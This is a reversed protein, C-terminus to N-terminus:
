QKELFYQLYRSFHPFVDISITRSGHGTDTPTDPDDSWYEAYNYDTQINLMLMQSYLECGVVKYTGEQVTSPYNRDGNPTRILEYRFTGDPNFTFITRQDYLSSTSYNEWTGFLYRNLEEANGPGAEQQIIVKIIYRDDFAINKDNTFALEITDRRVENTLNPVATIYMENKYRSPNQYDASFSAKYWNTNSARWSAIAYSGKGYSFSTIIGSSPITVINTSVYPEDDSAAAQEVEFAGYFPDGDVSTGEIRVMNGRKEPQKNEGMTITVTNGDLTGEIEPSSAPIRLTLDTLNTEKIAVTQTGGEKPFSLKEPELVMFPRAQVVVISDQVLEEGKQSLGTLRIVGRRSQTGEPLDTWSFSVLNESSTWLPEGMWDVTGKVEVNKMNPVVDVEKLGIYEGRLYGGKEGLNINRESIDFRAADVTFPKQQNVLLKRGTSLVVMPYATLNREIGKGPDIDTLVMNYTGNRFFSIGAEMITEDLWGYEPHESVIDKNEDLVIFGVKLPAILDRSIPSTLKYRYPRYPKEDDISVNIGTINPVLYRHVFPATVEDSPGIKWPGLSLELARKVYGAISIETNENMTKYYPQSETLEYDQWLLGWPAKMEIKGGVDAGLCFGFSTTDRKVENGESTDKYKSLFKLVRTPVWKQAKELPLRLKAEAKFYVGAGLSTQLPLDISSLPTEATFESENKKIVTNYTYNYEPVTFTLPNLMELPNQHKVVTFANTISEKKSTYAVKFGSISGELYLGAGLEFKLGKANGEDGTTKADKTGVRPFGIEWRGNLTGSLSLEFSSESECTSHIDATLGYEVDYFICARYTLKPDFSSTASGTVDFSVSVPAGNKSLQWSHTLSLSTSYPVIDWTEEPVDITYGDFIGNPRRGKAASTQGSPAVAGKVVLRDYIEILSVPETVILYGDENLECGVVRGGFGDPLLACTQEILLKDGVKPILSQPTNPALVMWWVSDSAVVYDTISKDPCFVDERVKDEPTVFAVSDIASLPIRYLTDLAYVEQVVYDEQEVGLTDTKSYAIHDIDGYYFFHFQGDNRFIYLADQTRMAQAPQIIGAFALLM